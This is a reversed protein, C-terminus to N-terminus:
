GEKGDEPATQAAAPEPPLGPEEIVEDPETREGDVKRSLRALSEAMSDLTGKYDPLRVVALLLAAVWFINNHTFLALLTLVAILQLQTSNHHHAMHEPMAHLKFYLNGALLLLGLMLFLVLMFLPDSGDPGPLYPPLAGPALPHIEPNM